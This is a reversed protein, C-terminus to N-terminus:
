KIHTNYYRDSLLVRNPNTTYIGLRFDNLRKIDVRAVPEDLITQVPQWIYEGEVPGYVKM